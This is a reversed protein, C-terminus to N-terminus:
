INDMSAIYNEIENEDKISNEKSDVFKIPSKNPTKAL